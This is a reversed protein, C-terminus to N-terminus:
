LKSKLNAIIHQLWKNIIECEEPIGLRFIDSIITKHDSIEIFRWLNINTSVGFIPEKEPKYGDIMYRLCQATGSQVDNDKHKVEIWLLNRFTLDCNDEKAKGKVFAELPIGCKGFVLAIVDQRSQENCDENRIGPIIRYSGRDNILCPLLLPDPIPLSRSRVDPSQPIRYAVLFKYILGNPEEYLLGYKSYASPPFDDISVSCTCM